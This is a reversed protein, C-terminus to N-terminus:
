PATMPTNAVVAADLMATQHRPPGGCRRLGDIIAAVFAHRLSASRPLPLLWAAIVGRLLTLPLDTVWFRPGSYARRVILANRTMLYTKTATTVPVDLVVGPLRVRVNREIAPHTVRAAPVVYLRVGNARLRLGYEVDEYWMFLEARPPGVCRAVPVPLLLAHWALEMVPLRGAADAMRELESVNEVPQVRGPVRLNWALRGDPQASAAGVVVARTGAAAALLMELCDSAPVADDDLLWIFDVDARQALYEVAVAFGGASGLNGGTALVEASGGTRADEIAARVEQTVDNDVILLEDPARTQTRVAALVTGLDAARAHAVVAAAVRPRAESVAHM